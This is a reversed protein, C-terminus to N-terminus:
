DSEWFAEIAPNYSKIKFLLAPLNGWIFKETKGVRIKSFKDIPIKFNRQMASELEQDFLRIIGEQLVLLIDKPNIAYFSDWSPSNTRAIVLDAQMGPHLSGARPMNWCTAANFTVMDFLEQAGVKVM